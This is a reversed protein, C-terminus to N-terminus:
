VYILIPGILNSAKNPQKLWFYFNCKQGKPWPWQGALYGFSMVAKHEDKEVGIGNQYCNGLAFIGDSVGMEASKQYLNIGQTIIPAM